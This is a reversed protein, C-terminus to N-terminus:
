ALLIVIVMGWVTLLTNGIAYPVTYGLTPVQSKATECILGISASSTRAGACCGFLIAPDFRFIFRGALMGVFLPVSTAAIGWLFLSVGVQRVGAVFGSGASIGVAALFGCIGITSMFWVASSPIRGFTPHVSRLWGFILGAILAGGATTITLPVTGIPIVIAGILTGAAIALGIFAIDAADTARDAYGLDAAAVAVDQKRGALTLIDGRHIQTAPLIPISMGAHGRRIKRVFVGHQAPRRAVDAITASDVTKNTVFVDVGDIPIDLLELDDLEEEAHGIIDVLVSRRGAIALVDGEAIVTDAKAELIKGDRRLREVVVYEHPVLSEVEALTKGVVTTGPKVRYARVEYQHWASDPGGPETDGAMKAEYRRCADALDIGLLRPGIKALIIASGAEGFIFTVAYAIPVTNILRTTEGAPLGLREITETVLGVSASITQSGSYLGASYGLDYGALRAVLYAVGLSIVCQLAAFVGQPLGGGAIARVFQPGIGYGIAFLFMLFFVAKLHSSVTIDLQGLLVGAILTASVTGISFGRISKGGIWYGIGISLFIAIESHSRLTQAFWELM